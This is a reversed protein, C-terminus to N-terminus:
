QTGGIDLQVLALALQLQLHQSCSIGRNAPLVNLVSLVRAFQAILIASCVPELQLTGVMDQHVLTLVLQQQLPLSCFIGQIALPANLIVQAQVRLALQTALRVFTIQPTKIIDMLALPFVLRQRQSYFIGQTACLVNIPLVVLVSQVLLIVASASAIQTSFCIRYALVVIKLFHDLAHEADLMALM